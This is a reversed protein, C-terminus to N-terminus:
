KQIGLLVKKTKLYSKLKLISNNKIKSVLAKQASLVSGMTFDFDNRYKKSPLVHFLIKGSDIKKNLYHITAGVYHLNNDYIAWFNCAAGKYYPSIGIHINIAKKKILYSMLWGKIYSSGFVIYLNSNLFDKLEKKKLNNIKGWKTYLFKIKKKVLPKNKFIKKEAKIVKKFYRKHLNSKNSINSLKNKEIVVYCKFGLSSIKNILSHHRSSNSTFITIKM